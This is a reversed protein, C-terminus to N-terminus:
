RANEEDISVSKSVLDEGVPNALLADSLILDAEARSTAGLRHVATAVFNCVTIIWERAPSDGPPVVTAAM